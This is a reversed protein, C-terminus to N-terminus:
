DAPPLLLEQADFASGPGCGKGGASSSRLVSRWGHLVMWEALRASLQVVFSPISDVLGNCLALRASDFLCASSSNTGYSLADDNDLWKTSILHGPPLSRSSGYRTLRVKTEIFVCLTIVVLMLLPNQKEDAAADRQRIFSYGRAM